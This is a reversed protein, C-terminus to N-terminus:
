EEVAIFRGRNKIQYWISVMWLVIILAYTLLSLSVSLSLSKIITMSNTLIILGGVLVGLLYTPVIRVLWAAIPAAVVGGIMFAIVWQWNLQELGLFLIFGLTASVAIAFESTSVTGIVKKPSIGKRAILMPTTIPGWGGGGVADFFGGIIGLPTLFRKSLTPSQKISSSVHNFFLFRIIIYFGLIILFISIFPKIIDGPINSLFAAGIFASIAGPITLKFLINKDVNGYRLHSAGSAASTVIEAMHISASAVAPAIGFMLLLSASTAGFGMGLSGDVLQALFGIISFIILKNM